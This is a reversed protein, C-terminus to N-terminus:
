HELRKITIPPTNGNGREVNVKYTVSGKAVLLNFVGASLHSYNQENLLLFSPEAAIIDSHNLLWKGKMRQQYLNDASEPWLVKWLFLPVANINLSDSRSLNCQALMEAHQNITERWLPLKRLESCTQLLFNAPASLVAKQYEEKEAGGPRRWNDADAYDALIDGYNAQEVVSLGWGRLWYKLWYQGRANVPILGATNQLVYEVGNGQQYSFGDVRIEDGIISHVWHGEDDLLAGKLAGQSIGAVTSRQTTILYILENLKATALAADQIHHQSRQAIILRSQLTNAAVGLLLVMVVAVVLVALLAAGTQQKCDGM